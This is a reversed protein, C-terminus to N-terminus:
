NNLCAELFFKDNNLLEKVEHYNQIQEEVTFTNIKKTFFEEIPIKKYLDMNGTIFKYIDEYSNNLNEYSINITSINNEQLIRSYLNYQLQNEKSRKLYLNIDFQIKKNIYNENKLVRVINTAEKKQYSLEQLFKNNRNLHIIKIDNSKIYEIFSFNNLLEIQYYIIKHGFFPKSCFKKFQNIFKEANDFRYYNLKSKYIETIFNYDSDSYPAKQSFIKLLEKSNINSRISSVPYHTGDHLSMQASKPYFLEYHCRILNQRNLYNCLLTSGSRQSALILFNNLM